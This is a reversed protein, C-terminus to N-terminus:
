RGGHEWSEIRSLRGDIAKHRENCNDRTVSEDALEARVSEIRRTENAAVETRLEALEVKTVMNEKISRLTAGMSGANYVIGGVAVLAVIWAPLEALIAQM